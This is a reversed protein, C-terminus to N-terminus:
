DDKHAQYRIFEYSHQKNQINKTWKEAIFQQPTSDELRRIGLWTGEHSSPIPM